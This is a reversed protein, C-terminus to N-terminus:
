DVAEMDFAEDTLGESMMEKYHEQCEDCLNQDSGLSVGAGGELEIECSMCSRKNCQDCLVRGSATMKSSSDEAGCSECPEMGSEDDMEDTIDEEEYTPTVAIHRTVNKFGPLFASNLNADDVLDVGDEFSWRGHEDFLEKLVPGLNISSDLDVFEKRTRNILTAM